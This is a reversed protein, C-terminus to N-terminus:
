GEWLTINLRVNKLHEAVQRQVDQKLEYVRSGMHIERLSTLVRLRSIEKLGHCRYVQLLELRPMAEEFLVSELFYLADLRLVVLSPFSSNQFHLREGMFSGFNLRLVALNRLVGLVQIADDGRLGSFELSLKSLNHLQHIWDTVRFLGGYLKLSEIYRPPSLGEGLCGDLGSGDVSLSRLQNHGAIASWFEMRNKITVGVVGLKRLQTLEELGIRAVKGTGEIINVRHLTQLAKLKEVGKPIHVGRLEFDTLEANAVFFCYLYIIDSRNLYDDFIQPRFYYYNYIYM